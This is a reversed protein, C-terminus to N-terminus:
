DKYPMSRLLRMKEEYARVFTEGFLDENAREVNDRYSRSYDNWFKAKRNFIWREKYQAEVQRPDFKTLSKKLVAEFGTAMALQHNMIDEYGDKVADLPALYEPAERSLLGKLATDVSASFKLPNNETRNIITCPAGIERKTEARGHLLKMMGEIMERMLMGVLRFAKVPDENM